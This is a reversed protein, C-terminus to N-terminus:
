ATMLPMKKVNGQQKGRYLGYKDFLGSGQGGYNGLFVVNQATRREASYYAVRRWEGGLPAPQHSSPTSAPSTSTTWKVSGVSVPRTSQSGFWNDRWSVVQGNITAVVTDTREVTIQDAKQKEPNSVTDRKNIRSTNYVAFEKLHM